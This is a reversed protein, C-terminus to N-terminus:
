REASQRPGQKVCMFVGFDFSRSGLEPFPAMQPACSHLMISSINVRKSHKSVKLLFSYPKVPAGYMQITASM